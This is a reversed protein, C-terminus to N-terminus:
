LETIDFFVGVAFNRGLPSAFFRYTRMERGALEVREETVAKDDIARKFAANIVPDRTLSTLRPPDQGKAPLKGIREAADNCLVLDLSSNVIIVGERMSSIVGSLLRNTEETMRTQREVEKLVTSYRNLAYRSVFFTLLGVAVVTMVHSGTLSIGPFLITKTIEFLAFVVVAAATAIWVRRELNEM